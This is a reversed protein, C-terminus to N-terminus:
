EGNLVDMMMRAGLRFGQCFAEATELPCARNMADMLAVFRAKMEPSAAELSHIIEGQADLIEQNVEMYAGDRPEFQEVPILKGYYFDRIIGSM